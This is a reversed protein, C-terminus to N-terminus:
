SFARAPTKTSPKVLILGPVPHTGSLVGNGPDQIGVACVRGPLRDM